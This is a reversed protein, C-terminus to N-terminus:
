KAGMERMAAPNNAKVRKMLRKIDDEEEDDASPERCFPCNNNNGNTMQSYVCGNCIYNSCCLMFRSKLRDIKTLRTPNSSYNETMCGHRGIKASKRTSREIIRVANIAAIDLPNVALANRWNSTM